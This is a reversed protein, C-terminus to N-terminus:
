DAPMPTPMPHEPEETLLEHDEDIAADTGAPKWSEKEPPKEQNLEPRKPKAAM